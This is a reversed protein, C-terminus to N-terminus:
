SSRAAEARLAAEQSTAKRGVFVPENGSRTRARRSSNNFSSASNAASGGTVALASGRVFASCSRRVFGRSSRLPIVAAVILRCSRSFSGRTMRGLRCSSGRTAPMQAEYIRVTRPSNEWGVNVLKMRSKCSCSGRTTNSSHLIGAKRRKQRSSSIRAWACVPNRAKSAFPETCNGARNPLRRSTAVVAQFPIM